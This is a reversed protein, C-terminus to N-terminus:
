EVSSDFARLGEHLSQAVPIGIPRAQQLPRISLSNALTPQPYAQRLTM